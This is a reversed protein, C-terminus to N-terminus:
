EEKVENIGYIDTLIEHFCGELEIMDINKIKAEVGIKKLPERLFQLDNKEIPRVYFGMGQRSFIVDEQILEKYAHAVTNPNIKLQLALTRVSPLEEMASFKGSAIEEKIGNVIQRYTPIGSLYDIKVIM